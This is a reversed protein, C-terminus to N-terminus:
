VVSGVPGLDLIVITPGQEDASPDARYVTPLSFLSAYTSGWWM